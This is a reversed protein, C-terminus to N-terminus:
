SLPNKNNLNKLLKLGLPSLKYKQKSSNPKDPITMVVYGADLSPSLYLKRFSHAHTLNFKEMIQRRSLPKDKLLFVLKQVQDTVQDTAQDSLEKYSQHVILEFMFYSRGLDTYITPKPSGNEDCARIIKLFGISRCGM